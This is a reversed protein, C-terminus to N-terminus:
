RAPYLRHETVVQDVPRDHDSMPVRDVVQLDFAAAVLATGPACEALLRDYYGAGYGIRGGRPDFVVGPVLVFDIAECAAPPCRAPDPEPIGWVGPRLETGPTTVRYLALRRSARDVRPLVLSKGAELVAALFPATVPESGFSSYALVTRATAFVPLARITQFILVSLAARPEPGLADRQALIRRRLEAKAVEQVAPDDYRSVPAYL